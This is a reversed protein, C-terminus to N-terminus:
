PQAGAPANSLAPKKAPKPTPITTAGPPATRLHGPGKLLDGIPEADFAPIRQEDFGLMPQSDVDMAVAPAYM